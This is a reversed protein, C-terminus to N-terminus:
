PTIVFGISGNANANAYADATSGANRVWVGVRYASSAVTQTSAYTNGTGWDQVVVWSTGNFLWWKYQYPATGGSANATFTITTGPPQPSALNPTIANLVLPGSSPAAASIVYPMASQAQPADAMVGSNRAWVTVRADGIASGPTWAFSSTGSWDQATSYSTGGDISVRWKYQYPASGGAAAASFTVTTGATQPSPANATLSTLSLPVGATAIEYGISLNANANAYLDANNGANRVWAAVRYVASASTPTWAFTNTTTWDRVVRWTGDFIWWKYQYPATGNSANATFTITAGPAQPSAVDSTISNLILPGTSPPAASIVYSMTSQSQPADVAIGSNRAWVTVRGDAIESGPTWAFTSGASWDQATTFNLGGDTSVRWKFQYPAMGGAATAAFAITTGAAQPSAVNANLSTVSLPLGAAAIEYGISLNSNANAYVDATSGANRVWAAVRYVASASTPTWAFTNSTTWDRVVRWTGDFIWWKYQYPATGGSANAAFMITAGPAQPSAVDTTISNLVLPGASPPAASIVYSMTSQAQPADAVVGGNRAWVTVRADAIASGPTWAFTSGASWDQATSFNAGGDTSVRWKFQYPATGGAATAAFTITTGVAQPSAANATLSTVSLPVGATAIEYGVSLNSTANAYVDATSGANRVWAAVRYAASASTPTWAFTNSTTWDRVITWSTGNFVWWKYQYPATGNSANATFTITTGPAQPSPVNSTISNLVLPGTSPPAASIVYSITSQAQPADAVVGSNRAWVTIRADAIANPPRWVFMSAQSWDRATTFTAGGDTSVRWKYEYPWTGGAMTAGFIISTGPMQPSAASATVNTVSLPAVGTAVEYGISLNANANAYTDATSGANRVWAAVRYAASASTPTWAFTNSTTWDRVVRWAGDFIWWKYQYPATGGSAYATFTVTTGIPQPAPPNSTIAMLTLPSAVPSIVYTMTSEAQALNNSMHGNKVSVMVRANATPATPTWTFSAEPGWGQWRMFIGGDTSVDWAFQHPTIGGSTTAVFTIPTGLPQPSQLNSTLSTITPAPGSDVAFELVGRANDNDPADVLSSASRIWVVIQHTGALTPTWTFTSDSSWDRAVNSGETFSFTMWKYHHPPTGGSANARFKLTTGALQPLPLESVISDLRVPGPAPAVIVYPITFEAQPADATVGASRVWVNIRADAIPVAPRWGINNSTSWAPDPYTAGGDTSFRWKYEYPPTGGTVTATLGIVTQIVQPSPVHAVLSTVTLPPPPPTIEYAISGNANPNDYTDATSGANRVWVAVRSTSSAAAPTWAFTNSTAWDRLVSWTGDFLLWKYQYPAAGGSASATFTITTGAPRPAPLNPTISNLALSGPTTVVYSRTAQSQPADATVGSNRAWVTVRADTAPSTPTWFVSTGNTTWDQLTTFNAGGDTSVRWKYQYPALGGTANAVFLISTGILQPSAPSALSISVSPPPPTTVVYGISANASPNDYADATSGAKRLWVGIRYDSSATMPTWVHFSSQSWDRLVRWTGDFILWKYEYPAVGGTGSASLLVSTGAQRPSAPNATLSTLVIPTPSGVVYPITAQVQPADATVGESRVWVNILANSVATSPIWTWTPDYQAWDKVTTYTAGGDTSLRYKIQHPSSGGIPQARFTITTGAPQPSPQLAALTVSTPPLPPNIAFAMSGIANANDASDTRNSLSRVWVEIRYNPNPPYYSWVFHNNTTHWNGTWSWQTGDWVRWKYELPAVGGAGEAAFVVTTWFNQPSTENATLSVLRLPERSLPTFWSENGDIQDSVGDRATDYATVNVVTNAPLGTLQFTTANGVDIPSPGQAAGTGSYSYDGAAGYWVRYGAVDNEPNANWTISANSGNRVVALGTPPSLPADTNISGLPFGTDVAATPPVPNYTGLAINARIAAPDNTGWWNGTADVPPPTAALGLAYRNQPLTTTNGFLNNGHLTSSPAGLRLASPVSFTSDRAVTANNVITNSLMVLTTGASIGAGGNWVGINNSVLNRSFTVAGTASIHVGGAGYLDPASNGSFINETVTVTGSIDVGLGGGASFSDAMNDAFVNRTVTLTNDDRLTGSSFDLGRRRNNQVINGTVEITGLGWSFLDVGVDNDYVANDTVLFRVGPAIQSYLGTGNDRLTNRSVRADSQTGVPPDIGQGMFAHLMVGYYRYGVVSNNEVVATARYEVWIGADSGTAPPPAPATFDSNRINLTGPADAKIVGMVGTGASNRVTVSDILPRTERFFIANSGFATVAGAGEFVVHELISGGTWVGGAGYVADASSDALMVHSWFGPTVVSETSTLRIKSSATGRAVLTGNVVLGQSQEFRVVVGPEITLTIGVPVQVTSTVVIPSQALTWTTNAPVDGSVFTDAAVQSPQLLFLAIAFAATLAAHQFPRM